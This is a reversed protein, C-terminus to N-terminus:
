FPVEFEGQEELYDVADKEKIAQREEDEFMEVAKEQIKNEVKGGEVRLPCKEKDCTNFNTNDNQCEGHFYYNCGKHDSIKLVKWTM